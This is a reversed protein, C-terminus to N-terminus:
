VIAAHTFGQRMVGPSGSCVIVKLNDHRALASHMSLHPVHVSRTSTLLTGLGELMLTRPCARLCCRPPEM